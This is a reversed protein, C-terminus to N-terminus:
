IDFHLVEVMCRTLVFAHSGWKHLFSIISNFCGLFTSRFIFRKAFPHIGIRPAQKSWGDVLFEISDHAAHGSNSKLSILIYPEDIACTIHYGMVYQQKLIYLILLMKRKKLILDSM